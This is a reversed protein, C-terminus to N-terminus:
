RIVIGDYGDIAAREVLASLVQREHLESDEGAEAVAIRGGRRSLVWSREDDPLSSASVELDDTPHADTNMTSPGEARDVWDGRGPSEGCAPCCWPHTILDCACARGAEPDAGRSCGPEHPYHPDVNGLYRGCISCTNRPDGTM